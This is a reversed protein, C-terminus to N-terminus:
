AGVLASQKRRYATLQLMLGVAILALGALDSVTGQMMLGLSAAFFVARAAINTNCGLWGSVGVALCAVGVFSSFVAQTIDLWDGILLLGPGFAFMYPVIFSTLGLLFAKVGITVANGGAIPAATFAALAVPPTIVAMCAFYFIFLHAQIPMLGMAILAPATLASQIIYSATTPLGMGLILSSFMTLVMALLLSGHSLATIASSFKLGLGTFRIVAIIIGACACAAAVPIIGNAAGQIAELIKKPTMATRKSLYSAAICSVIGWFGARMPSTGTVMLAIIIVLPLALHGSERMVIMPKRIEEPPIGPLEHKRAYFYVQLFVAFFYLLAPVLAHKAIETYPVGVYEAMIFAGAGMIPPMIQGGSSAVSEVAGAFNKEYGVKKMMPITLVGTTAVNAVASGSITGMLASAIVAMLGPGGRVKGVLSKAIDMFFEGAGSHELFAGFMVFMFVYTASIAMPEGFFGNFTLYVQEIFRPLSVGKYYLVGSFLPGAFAYATFVLAIVPLAWGLKRRTLELVTLYGIIGLGLQLLTVDDVQPLRMLIEDNDIVVYMMSVGVLCALIVNLIGDLRTRTEFMQSTLFGIMAVFFFHVGPQILGPGTGFVATYMQFAVLGLSLVTVTLKVLQKGFDLTDESM